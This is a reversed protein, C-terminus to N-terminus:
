GQKSEEAKKQEQQTKDPLILYGLFGFLPFLTGIIAAVVVNYGKYHAVMTTLIAFGAILVLEFM